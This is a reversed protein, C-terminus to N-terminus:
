RRKGKDGRAEEKGAGGEQLGWEKQRDQCQQSPIFDSPWVQNYLPNSLTAKIGHPQTSVKSFFLLGIKISLPLMIVSPCSATKMLIRWWKGPGWRNRHRTVTLIRLSTVM